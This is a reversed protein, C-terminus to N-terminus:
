IFHQGKRWTRKHHIGQWGVARIAYGDVIFVAQDISKGIVKPALLTALSFKTFKILLVFMECIGFCKNRAALQSDVIHKFHAALVKGVVADIVTFYFAKDVIHAVKFHQHQFNVVCFAFQHKGIHRNQQGFVVLQIATEALPVACM